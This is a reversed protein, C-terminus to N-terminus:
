IKKMNTQIVMQAYVVCLSKKNIWKIEIEDLKENICSQFIKIIDTDLTPLITQCEPDGM